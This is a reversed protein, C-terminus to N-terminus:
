GVRHLAPGHERLWARAPGRLGPALTEVHRWFAASHNMERLHAVEHATVYDLVWGPAMMLRWSFSLDRSPACSGWRSRTDRLVIRGPAVDLRAAHAAVRAGIEDRARARLWDRVRRPLHEARGSVCLSAGEQWVGRRAEPRHCLRVPHGLVPVEAGDALVVPPPLRGLHEALWAVKSDLFRRAAAEHRRHPIVVVVRDAVADVKLSIRRARPNIRTIVPVARDGVTLLRDGAPAERLM